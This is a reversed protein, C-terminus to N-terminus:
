ISNAEPSQERVESTQAGPQYSLQNSRASSLRSTPPEFGGRGVVAGAQRLWVPALRRESRSSRSAPWGESPSVRAALREPKRRFATWQVAKVRANARAPTLPRLEAPLAGAKCAPPRRNSGSRSWWRPPKPSALVRAKVAAAKAFGFRASESRRSPSALVRALGATAKPYSVTALHCHGTQSDDPLQCCGASRQKSITSLHSKVPAGNPRRAKPKHRPNRKSHPLKQRTSTKSSDSRQFRQTSVTAQKTLPPNQGQALRSM